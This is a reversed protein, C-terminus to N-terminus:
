ADRRAQLFYGKSKLVGRCKIIVSYRLVWLPTWVEAQEPAVTAVMDQFSKTPLIETPDNHTLLQIDYEKAFATLEPPMVCCSALNVQNSAPKVQAWHYLEELLQSDLDSTGITAVKHAAILSELEAWYPSLRDATLKEEEPLPPPALVVADLLSVGLAMCAHTSPAEEPVKEVAPKIVQADGGLLFIKATIKLDDRDEASIKETGPCVCVDEGGDLKSAWDSLTSRVCDVLEESPSSGYKNRLAGRNVVNGTHVTLTRAATLASGHSGRGCATVASM